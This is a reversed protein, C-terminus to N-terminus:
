LPVFEFAFAYTFNCKEFTLRDIFGNKRAVAFLFYFKRPTRISEYGAFNINTKWELLRCTEFSDCRNLRVTILFYSECVFVQLFWWSFEKDYLWILISFKCYRSKYFNMCRTQPEWTNCVAAFCFTLNM